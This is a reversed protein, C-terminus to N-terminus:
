KKFEGKIPQQLIKEGEETLVYQGTKAAGEFIIFGKAKLGQLQKELTKAPIKLYESLNVARPYLKLSIAKLLSEQQINVGGNVDGSVGGDIGGNVGGSEAARSNPLPIITKFLDAEIFHPKQGNAYFPLYYNTRVIGSGLEEVRGIQM